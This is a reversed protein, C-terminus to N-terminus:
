APPALLAALLGGPEAGTIVVLTSAGGDHVETRLGGPERDVMVEAGPFRGRLEEEVHGRALRSLIM